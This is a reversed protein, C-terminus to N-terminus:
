AADAGGAKPAEDGASCGAGRELEEIGRRATSRRLHWMGGLKFAGPVLGNDLWHSVTRPKRGYFEAIEKVGRLLDDALRTETNV